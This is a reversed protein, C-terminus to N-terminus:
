LYTKFTTTHLPKVASCSAMMVVLSRSPDHIDWLAPANDPDIRSRRIPLITGFAAM